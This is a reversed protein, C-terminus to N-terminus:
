CLWLMRRVKVSWALAGSREGASIQMPQSSAHMNAQESLTSSSQEAAHIMDPSEAHMAQKSTAKDNYICRFKKRYCRACSPREGSCRTKSARCRECSQITRQRKTGAETLNPTGSAASQPSTSTNGYGPCHLDLRECNACGNERREDCKVKRRRCLLCGAPVVTLSRRSPCYSPRVQVLGREGGRSRSM